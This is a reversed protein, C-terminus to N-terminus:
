SGSSRAEVAISRRFCYIAGGVALAGAGALLNAASASALLAISLALAAIPITPGLPLRVGPLAAMRRRLVPVAAATGIYTAVRAIVSLTALEVFSGSLALVLAITMQVVIANAPTRYGPHV